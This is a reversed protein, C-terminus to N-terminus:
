PGVGLSCGFGGIGVVESAVIDACRTKWRANMYACSDLGGSSWGGPSVPEWHASNVSVSGVLLNSAM